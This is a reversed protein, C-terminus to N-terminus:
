LKKKTGISPTTNKYTLIFILTPIKETNKQSIKTIRTGEQSGSFLFTQMDHNEYICIKIAEFYSTTPALNEDGCKQPGHPIVLIFISGYGAQM